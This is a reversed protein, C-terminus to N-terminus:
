ARGRDMGHWAAAPDPDDWPAASADSVFAEPGEIVVHQWAEAPAPAGLLYGQGFRVSLESLTTRELETEIGVAILARGSVRAFEMLGVILAQRTLDADIGRVLSMDLKVFDPRLQILHQFNAAGAGADDIAVRVGAGLARLADRLADYDAVVAHETIELAIPRAQGALIPRLEDSAMVMEPSINLSLMAGAPLRSAAKIAARITVLELTNGMGCATAEAYQAEPSAMEDFRTFAEFGLTLGSYLDVIPQFLTRFGKTAIIRRIRERVQERALVTVVHPALLSRAVSAVETVAPVLPLIDSGDSESGGILLVALVLGDHRVPVILVAHIGAQIGTADAAEDAGTIRGANLSEIWPGQEGHELIRDTMERPLRIGLEVGIPTTSRIGALRTEHAGEFLAVGAAVAGPLECLIAAVDDCTEVVTARPVLRELAAALAERQRRADDQSARLQRLRTVDRKVAVYAITTGAGDFVPAVLADEILLAGDRRRNVLEGRWPRGRSLTLWMVRYFASTQHGSQLIRPNKGLVDESRYGTSREFAPNVFQIRAETDTIVVSEGSHEVAAALEATRAALEAAATLDEGLSATGVLYGRADHVDMTTWRVLHSRGDRFLLPAADEPQSTAGAPGGHIRAEPGTTTRAGFLVAQDRGRLEKASWGTLDLFRTNAGLIRGGADVMLGLSPASELFSRMAAQMARAAEDARALDTVDRVVGEIIALAGTDDTLVRTRHETWLISGDRRIWRLVIPSHRGGGQDMARHLRLDDPHVLRERLTPNAYHEEPTYGTMEVCSHSVYEFRAEPLLRYRYVV